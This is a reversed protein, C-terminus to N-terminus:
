SPRGYIQNRNGIVAICDIEVLMRPDILGATIGTSIPRIQGFTEQHAKAFGESDSFDKVYITEKVVDELSAGHAELIARIKEYVIKMQTYMDDAMVQGSNDTATMGGVYVTDGTRIGRSYGFREELVSGFGVRNGTKVATWDGYEGM